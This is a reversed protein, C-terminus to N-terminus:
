ADIGIRGNAPVILIKGGRLITDTDNVKPSIYNGEVLLKVDLKIVKLEIPFNASNQFDIGLRVKQTQGQDNVGQGLRQGIQRLKGTSTYRDKLESCRLLGTAIVAFAFAAGYPIYAWPLGGLWSTASVVVTPVVTYLLIRAVEGVFWQTFKEIYSPM